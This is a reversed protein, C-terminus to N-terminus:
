GAITELCAPGDNQPSNVRTSVRFARMEEAACPRLLSALRHVDTLEPNLWSDLDEPELIVPMRDHIPALLANPTTTIITCTELPEAGREWREWLGAFAFPKQDCRRIHFPQKKGPTRQWEYFGDALVLCRRVKFAARFAPKDLVTEARANIMRAGAEPNKAWSPVLGWKVLALERSAGATKMRVVPVAQTPAINYRPELQPREPLGFIEALEDGPTTLSYRGCM